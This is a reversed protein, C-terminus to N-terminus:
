SYLHLKVATLMFGWLFAAKPYGQGLHPTTTVMAILSFLTSEMNKLLKRFQHPAPMPQVPKERIQPCLIMMLELLGPGKPLGARAIGELFFPYAVFLDRRLHEVYTDFVIQLLAPQLLQSTSFKPQPRSAKPQSRSSKPQSRSSSKPQSMSSKPQSM